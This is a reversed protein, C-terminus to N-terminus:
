LENEQILLILWKQKIKILFLLILQLISLNIKGIQKQSCFLTLKNEPIRRKYHFLFHNSM